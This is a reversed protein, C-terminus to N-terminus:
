LLSIVYEQYKIMSRNILENHKEKDIFGRVYIIERGIDEDVSHKGQTSNLLYCCPTKPLKAIVYERGNFVKLATLSGQLVFRYGCPENDKIHEYEGEEFTMSPYVDVHGEVKRQQIKHTLTTIKTFPLQALIKNFNNKAISDDDIPTSSWYPNYEKLQISRDKKCFKLRSLDVDIPLFLINM